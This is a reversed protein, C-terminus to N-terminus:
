DPRAAALRESRSSLRGHRTSRAPLPASARAHAARSRSRVARTSTARAPTTASAADTGAVPSTGADGAVRSGGRATGGRTLVIMTPGRGRTAAVGPAPAGVPTVPLGAVHPPAPEAPREPERAESPALEDRALEIPVVLIPQSASADARDRGRACCFAAGGLWPGAAYWRHPHTTDSSAKSAVAALTRQPARARSVVSGRSRLMRSAYRGRRSEYRREVWRDFEDLAATNYTTAELTTGAHAVVQQGADLTLTLTLAVIGVGTTVTAQGRAVSVRLGAPDIAILYEGAGELAVQGDATDVRTQALSDGATVRLRGRQCRVLQSGLVDIVTDHDLYLHEAAGGDLQIELRGHGTVARDGEFVPQDIVAVLRRTGRIIFAEGETGSVMGLRVTQAQVDATGVSVEWILFLFLIASVVRGRGLHRYIMTNSTRPLCRSYVVGLTIRSGFM